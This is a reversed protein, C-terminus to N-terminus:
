KPIIILIQTLKGITFNKSKLIKQVKGTTFTGDAKEPRLNQESETELSIPSDERPKRRPRIKLNKSHPRREFNENEIAPSTQQPFSTNEAFREINLFRSFKSLDAEQEIDFATKTYKRKRCYLMISVLINADLESFLDLPHVM